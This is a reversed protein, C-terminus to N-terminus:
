ILSVPLSNTALNKDVVVPCGYVDEINAATIVKDLKGSSHVGGHKLMILLFPTSSFLPRM